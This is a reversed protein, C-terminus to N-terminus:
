TRPSPNSSEVLKRVEIVVRDGHMHVEYHRMVTLAIQDAIASLRETVRNRAAEIEEELVRKAEVQLAQRIAGEVASGQSVFAM